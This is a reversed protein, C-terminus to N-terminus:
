IPMYSLDFVREIFWGVGFLLIVASLGLVVRRQFAQRNLWLVLPFVLGVIAVQGIEVGVNFSLLSAVLGRTPLGLDRLVNAFGFGHVLGFAFTLMWRHDSREIWFNEVAVYAISLAIGAEILRGPLSVVELAALCLTLSHALTFATVIKVLNRLGGGVAVLALLFMLHDYGLFIHEVGLLAFDWLQELLPVPKQAEFVQRPNEAGFVAQQLPQGPLLLQALNKHDSGFRRYFEVQVEVQSPEQKLRAGFFLHAFMNGQNDPEVEGRGRELHVPRGDASLRLHEAVFAFLAPLGESMEEYLLIGDGDRDLGLKLMDYDDIRVRLKLTDEQVILTTYSTDLKHAQLPLAAALALVLAGLAKQGSWGEDIRWRSRM